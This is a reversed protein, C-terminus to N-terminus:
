TLSCDEIKRSKGTAIEVITEGDIKYKEGCGACEIDSGTLWLRCGCESCIVYLFSHNQGM